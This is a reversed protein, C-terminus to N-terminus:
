LAVFTKDVVAVQLSVFTNVHRAAVFGTFQLPIVRPFELTSNTAFSECLRGVKNRVASNVASLVRTVQTVLRKTLRSM